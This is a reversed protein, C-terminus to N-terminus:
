QRSVDNFVVVCVIFIVIAIVVALLSLFCSGDERAVLHSCTASTITAQPRM